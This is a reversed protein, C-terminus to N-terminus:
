YKLTFTFNFLSSSVFAQSTNFPHHSFSGIWNLMQFFVKFLIIEWLRKISWMQLHRRCLVLSPRVIIEYNSNNVLGLTVSTVPSLRHVDNQLARELTIKIACTKLRNQMHKCYCNYWSLRKNLLICVLIQGFVHM